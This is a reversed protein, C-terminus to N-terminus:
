EGYDYNRLFRESNINVQNFKLPKIKESKLISESNVNYTDYYLFKFNLNTLLHAFKFSYKGIKYIIIM